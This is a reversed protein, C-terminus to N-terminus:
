RIGKRASVLTREGVQMGAIGEEWGPIVALEFQREILSGRM